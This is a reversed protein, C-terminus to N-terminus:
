FWILFRNIVAKFFLETVSLESLENKTFWPRKTAMTLLSADENESKTLKIDGSFSM